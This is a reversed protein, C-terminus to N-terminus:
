LAVKWKEPIPWVQAWERQLARFVQAYQESAKRFAHESGKTKKREHDKFRNVMTMRYRKVKADEVYGHNFHGCNLCVAGVQTLGPVNDIPRSDFGNPTFPRECKGCTLKSEAM